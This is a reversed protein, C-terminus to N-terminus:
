GPGVEIVLRRGRCSSLDVGAASNALLNRNRSMTSDEKASREVMSSAPATDPSVFHSGPLFAILRVNIATSSAPATATLVDVSACARQPRPQPQPKPANAM